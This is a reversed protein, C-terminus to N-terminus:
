NMWILTQRNLMLQGSEIKSVDLLDFILEQLKNSSNLARQVFFKNEESLEADDLMELFGKIITLPTKLEHSAIGIFEDKKQNSLKVQDMLNNFELSLQAVEDKGKVPVHKDYDGSARINDITTILSILPKSIYGQNIIAIVFALTIGIILLVAGIVIKQNIIKTLESLEVQLCVTGEVENDKIINKYVFLFGHAFNYNDLFPGTFNYVTIGPRTYSAFVEGKKDLIVANIVDPETQQLIKIAAENDLFQLSSISNTGIVKAISVMSIVKREKYGRIDTVVFAVFCLALVLICTIVQMWILKNKISLDRVSIM